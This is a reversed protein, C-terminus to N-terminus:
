VGCIDVVKLCLNTLMEIDAGGDLEIQVVIEQDEIMFLGDNALIADYGWAKSQVVPTGYLAMAVAGTVFIGRVRNGVAADVTLATVVTVTSADLDVEGILTNIVSGDDQEIELREGVVVGVPSTVSLVTQGIAEAVNITLNIDPDYVKYSVTASDLLRLSDTLDLTVNEPDVLQILRDSGIAIETSTSM